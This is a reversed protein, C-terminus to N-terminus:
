ILATVLGSGSLLNGVRNEAMKFFRYSTMVRAVKTQNSNLTVPLFKTHFYIEPKKVLTVLLFPM